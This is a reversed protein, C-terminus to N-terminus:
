MFAPDSFLNSRAVSAVPLPINDGEQRDSVKLMSVDVQHSLSDDGLRVSEGRESRV